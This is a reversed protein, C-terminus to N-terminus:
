KKMEPLNGQEVLNKLIRVLNADYQQPLNELIAVAEELEKNKGYNRNSTMADFADAIAIIRAEFPIEEGKIGYPYGSGDLREHHMAAVRCIHEEFYPQTMEYTYRPHQKIIQYEEKTLAGPKQLIEEPIRIKGVDHLGAATALHIIDYTPDVAMAMAIAYERVRNSHGATYIDKREIEEISKQFFNAATVKQSSPHNTFVLIKAFTKARILYTHQICDFVMSEQAKIEVEGDVTNVLLEGSLVYLIMVVDEEEPTLGLVNAPDIGYYVFQLTDNAFLEKATTKKEQFAPNKILQYESM